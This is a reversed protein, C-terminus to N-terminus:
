CRSQAIGAARSQLTCSATKVTATPTVEALVRLMSIEQAPNVYSHLFCM